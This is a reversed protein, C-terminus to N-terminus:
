NVESAMQRFVKHFRRAPAVKQFPKVLGDPSRTGEPFVLVCRGAALEALLQRMAGLDGKSRDFLLNFDAQDVAALHRVSHEEAAGSQPAFEDDVHATAM